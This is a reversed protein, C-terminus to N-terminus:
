YTYWLLCSNAMIMLIIQLVILSKYGLRDLVQGSALAGLIEGVGFCAMALLSYKSKKDDDWSDDMTKSMLTILFSSYVSVSLGTWLISPLLYRM